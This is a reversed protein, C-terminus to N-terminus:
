KNKASKKPAIKIEEFAHHLKEMIRPLAKVTGGPVVRVLNFTEDYFSQVIDTKNKYLKKEAM